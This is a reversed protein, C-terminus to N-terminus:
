LLSSLAELQGRNGASSAVIITGTFGLEQAHMRTRESNVILSHNLLTPCHPSALHVLNDLTENSMVSIVDFQKALKSALSKSPTPCQRKYVDLTGVSISRSRLETEIYGRGGTGKIVLLNDPSSASQLFLKIFSESNYPKLPKSVVAQGLNRLAQYTAEGLAYTEAEEWPLILKKNVHVVANTSTFVIADYPSIDSQQIEINTAVIELCPVHVVDFGLERGGAILGDAQGKPRTVLLRPNPKDM